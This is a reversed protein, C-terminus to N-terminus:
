AAKKLKMIGKRRARAKQCEHRLYMPKGEQAYNTIVGEAIYRYFAAKQLGAVQMAAQTSIYESNQQAVLQLTLEKLAKLEEVIPLLDETTLIQTPM